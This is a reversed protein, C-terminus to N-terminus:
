YISRQLTVSASFNSPTQTPNSFQRLLFGDRQELGSPSSISVTNITCMQAFAAILIAIGTVLQQDSLMLVTKDSVESWDSREDNKKIKRRHLVSLVGRDIRNFSETGLQRTFYGVLIVVFVIVASITFALIIGIGSIEPDIEKDCTFPYDDNCRWLDNRRFGGTIEDEDEGNDTVQLLTCDPIRGNCWM